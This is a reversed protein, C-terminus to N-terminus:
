GLLNCVDSAFPHMLSTLHLNIRGRQTVNLGELCLLEAVVAAPEGLDKIAVAELLRTEGGGEDLVILGERAFSDQAPQV